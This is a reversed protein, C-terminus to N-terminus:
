GCRPDLERASHIFCNVKGLLTLTLAGLKRVQNWKVLHSPLQAKLTEFGSYSNIAPRVRTDHVHEM